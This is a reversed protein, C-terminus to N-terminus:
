SKLHKMTPGQGPFFCTLFVTFLTSFPPSPFQGQAHRVFYVLKENPKPERGEEKISSVRVDVAGTIHKLTSQEVADATTSSELAALRETVVKHEEMSNSMDFCVFERAVFVGLVVLVPYFWLLLGRLSTM